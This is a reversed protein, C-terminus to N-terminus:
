IQEEYSVNWLFLGNPPVTVALHHRTGTELMAQIDETTIKGRAAAILTGTLIRVMNHLFSRCRYDVQIVDRPLVTIEIPQMTLQTRTATCAASRFASFDHEGSLLRAAAAIKEMDLHGPTHTLFQGGVAPRVRRNCLFFRYWRMRASRRADFDAAAEAADIVAIDRPLHATLGRGMADAPISSGPSFSIVQGMAHVGADTRGSATIRVPEGLYRELAEEVTQQISPANAQRQWGAYNTGDYELTMRVIRDSATM